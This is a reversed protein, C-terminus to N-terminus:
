QWYGPIEDRLFRSWKQWSFFSSPHKIFVLKAVEGAASTVTAVRPATRGIIPRYTPGSVVYGHRHAAAKLEDVYGSIEVGAFLCYGPQLINLVPFFTDWAVCYDERDPRDKASRMARQVRNYYATASWLQQKQQANHQHGLIAKTLGTVLKSAKEPKRLGKDFVFYRTFERGALYMSVEAATETENKWHYHSEGLILLRQERPLGAYNTGVWPLWHLERAATQLADDYRTDVDDRHRDSRAM